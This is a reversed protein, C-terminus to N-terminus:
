ETEAIPKAVADLHAQICSALKSSVDIMDATSDAKDATKDYEAYCTPHNKRDDEIKASDGGLDAYVDMLNALFGERTSRGSAAEVNALTGGFNSSAKDSESCLAESAIRFAKLTAATKGKLPSDN